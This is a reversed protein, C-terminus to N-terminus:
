VEVVAGSAPGFYCRHWCRSRFTHRTTQARKASPRYLFVLCWALQCTKKFASQCTLKAFICGSLVFYLAFVPFLSIVLGCCRSTGSNGGTQDREKERKREREGRKEREREREGGRERERERGGERGRGSGRGRESARATEREASFPVRSRSRERSGQIQNTYTVNERM